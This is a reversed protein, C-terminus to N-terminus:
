ALPHTQRGDAVGYTNCVLTGHSLVRCTQQWTACAGRTAIYPWLKTVRFKWLTESQTLAHWQRCVLAATNIDLADLWMMIELALEM